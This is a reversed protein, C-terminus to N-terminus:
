HNGKSDDYVKKLINYFVPATSEISYKALISDRGAQGMKKRLEGDEILASIKQEWEKQSYALFGNLGDKILEKNIGVPSAVVPIACAMYLIAKFGCKGRTWDNDPMPMIGIDFSQLDQVEDELRWKKDVVNALVPSYFSAPGIIKFVINKYRKSLDYFVNELSYLFKKTTDSGIWGIVIEGPKHSKHCARYKQTDISSPIVKTNKNYRLAYERLYDNGATVASAMKIIKSVKDPKKFREIYINHESTDPVFIADDFDFVIPKGMWRFISEMFAGGFPFAERHIFIIDYRAARLIDCFRNIACIGFWFAKETYRHPLYLIDYFATNVFPRIKCKVGRSRLYPLFQEVRVRNSAGKTPYPVLFLIKM